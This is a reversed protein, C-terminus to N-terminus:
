FRARIGARVARGLVPYGLPEMHDSDTLNDIAAIASLAGTLRFSGRVEWTSYGENELIPPVLSSFDSDVRRGVFSGAVDLSARSGTWAVGLFGSHRPRRFAWNGEQFAASTSTSTVIESDTFTYGAKARVGSVLAVDGTIEAGRATTLGINFYQAQFTAFDTKLSIIDQYRNDFWALNVRVRDAALRQEIGLELARTREPLLDPNGQFFPSPSFSQLITPEKIGRGASASLRTAGFTSGGQRVQWAAAIRPVTTNGFSDNHEFRIGATVFLRKWLAQHQLTLGVNDRSAPVSTGALADRLDAREGDWDVLATEVHTGARGTAITGDFQYSAHHRRLDSRSDYTFDSFEFPAMSEGFAPTYPPDAVLNTSALHSIAVGYAARQHIAGRAQDFSVGFTGDHRRFFADLDPRGFATQGPVGAKGREARGVVRLTAGAGLTAGATGSLTLNEFENNPVENDTTFGTVDASYDIASTKGSVGASTRVTSFSGGEFLLRGEPRTSEGRRTFLQIVGTMADSGYLASNAGRVFEIRDLNATMVNSLNFTGGPENLPVGDLLVKTYNSEGGRVFLSTVSGPAGSRVVHAGAAQRLVDALPPARRREIEAADFVTVSSAVQGSPAETRTASVVISEAIPALALTIKMAQDTRCPQSAAQFGSLSAHITCGDPAENLRFEGEADTFITTARAGDSATITIAARPIPRGSPDVVVGTIPASLSLALVLPVFV